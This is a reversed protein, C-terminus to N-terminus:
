VIRMIMAVLINPTVKREWRKKKQAMAGCYLPFDRYLSNKESFSLTELVPSFGLVPIKERFEFDGACPIKGSLSLTELVLSIGTFPNKESLSSTELVLSFGSVHIKQEFEFDETGAGRSIDRFFFRKM